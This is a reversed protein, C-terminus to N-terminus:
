ILIKKLVKKNLIEHPLLLNSMVEEYEWQELEDPDKDQEILAFYVVPFYNQLEFSLFRTVKLIDPDYFLILTKIKFKLIKKIQNESVKGKFTALCVVGGGNLYSDVRKKDFIGEVLICTHTELSLEDFGYLINGFNSVSNIYRQIANHQNVKNYNEIKVKSWKHRSVWGITRGGEYIPFIVYMEGGVKPDIQSVGVEYRKYDSQTFGRKNLYENDVCRRYGFPLKHEENLEIKDEQQEVEIKNELRLESYSYEGKFESLRGLHILLTYINGVVGCVKKRFCGFKQPAEISIGFEDGGCYPCIGYVNKGHVRGKKLISLLQQPTLKM